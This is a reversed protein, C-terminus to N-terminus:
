FLLDTWFCYCWFKLSLMRRTYCITCFNCPCAFLDWRSPQPPISLPGKVFSLQFCDQEFRHDHTVGVNTALLPASPNPCLGMSTYCGQDEGCFGESLEWSKPLHYDRRPQSSCCCSKLAASAIIEIVVGMRQSFNYPTVKHTSFCKQFFMM